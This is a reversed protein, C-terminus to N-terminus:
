ECTVIVVATRVVYEWFMLSGASIHKIKPQIYENWSIDIAVYCQLSHTIFISIALLIQVAKAQIEFEPLNSTITGHAESGYKLYGFFGMGVYLLVNVTMGVNLVGVPKMFQRPKKMENELPM